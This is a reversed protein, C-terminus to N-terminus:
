SIQILFIIKPYLFVLSCHKVSVPGLGERALKAWRNFGAWLVPDDHV